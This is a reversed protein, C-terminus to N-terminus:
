YVQPRSDSKLITRVPFGVLCVAALGYADGLGMGSAMYWMVIGIIGGFFTAIIRGGFNLATEGKFRAITLQAMISRAVLKDPFDNSTMCLLLSVYGM